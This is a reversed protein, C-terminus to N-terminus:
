QPTRDQTKQPYISEINNSLSFGVNQSVDHNFYHNKFVELHSRLPEEPQIVAMEVDQDNEEAPQKGKNKGSRRPAMKFQVRRRSPYALSSTIRPISSPYRRSSLSLTGSRPAINKLAAAERARAVSIKQRTFELISAFTILSSGVM